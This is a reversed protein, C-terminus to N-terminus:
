RDGVKRVTVGQPLAPAAAPAPAGDQKVGFSPNAPTLSDLTSASYGAKRYAGSLKNYASQAIEAQRQLNAKVIEPSMGPTVMAKDFEGKETATLASGFLKNRIENKYSQYDQWWQSFEKREPDNSRKSIAIAADGVTDFAFGAYNDKFNGQLRQSRSVQDSQESLDTIVKPPLPKGDLASENKARANELNIQALTRYVQSSQFNQDLTALSTLAKDAQEETIRGSKYADSNRKAIAAVAPAQSTTYAEFPNVQQDLPTTLIGAKRAADRSQAINKATEPDAIMLKQFAAQDIGQVKNGQADITETYLSPLSKQIDMKRKVEAFKAANIQEQTQRDVTAQAAGYGGLLAPALRQGFSMPQSTPGSNALLTAGFNLLGAQQAQQRMRQSDEESLLGPTPQMTQGMPFLYDLYSAM